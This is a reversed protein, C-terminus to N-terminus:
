VRDAFASGAGRLLSGLRRRGRFHGVRYSLVCAVALTILWPAAIRISEIM